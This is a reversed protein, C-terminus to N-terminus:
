DLVIMKKRATFTPTALEYYLVGSGALDNKHVVVNNLGGDYAGKIQHVMRGSFDFFRLTASNAKPLSFSITTEASFPNPKNQFLEFGESTNNRDFTLSINKAATGETYAEASLM